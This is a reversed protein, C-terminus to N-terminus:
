VEEEVRKEADHVTIAGSMLLPLLEDRTAALRENEQEAALARRHLSAISSEVADPQDTVVPVQAERVQAGNVSAFVTGTGQHEDWIEAFERLVYFLTAPHRHASIAALGRGIATRELAVNVEGVPARVAFLIDGQAAARVAHETYVRRTPYLTSFDRVGQFFPLGSGDENLFEGKPSTGMVIDAVDQLQSTESARDRVVAQALSMASAAVRRNAAIKDDLAGLVEVASQMQAMSASPVPLRGLIEANMSLMTSGAAHQTLWARARRDQFAFAYFRASLTDGFRAAIGDSGLFLDGFSPNVWSSRDVNGKRAFVVDREDLVYHGLREIVDGGVRPTEPRLAITGERVEGVSVLAHGM